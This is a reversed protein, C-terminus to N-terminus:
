KNNRECILSNRTKITASHVCKGEDLLNNITMDYSLILTNNLHEETFKDTNYFFERLKVCDEFTRTPEIYDALYILKEFLTMKERGTTHYKIGNFITNCVLAGYLKKALLAGTISHFVKPSCIDEPKVKYGLEHCLAIQEDTNKEKTIDHLIACIRLKNITVASLSFLKGLNAAEEEVALSHTLRKGSIYKSLESRLFDIDNKSITM